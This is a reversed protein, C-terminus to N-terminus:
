SSLQNATELRDSVIVLETVLGSGNFVVMDVCNIVIQQGNPAISGGNWSTLTGDFTVTMTYLAFIVGHEETIRKIEVNDGLDPFAHRQREIEDVFQGFTIKGTGPLEAIFNEACFGRLATYNGGNIAAMMAGYRERNSPTTM